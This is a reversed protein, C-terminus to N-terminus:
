AVAEGRKSLGALLSQTYLVYQYNMEEDKYSYVENGVVVIWMREKQIVQNGKLRKIVFEYIGTDLWYRFTDFRSNSVHGRYDFVRNLYYTPHPGVIKAVYSRFSTEKRHYVRYEFVVSDSLKEISYNM